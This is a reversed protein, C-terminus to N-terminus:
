LRDVEDEAQELVANSQQYDSALQLTMGRDMGYLVRSKSGYDKEASAVIADAGKPDHARLSTEILLYRNVSPGCGALLSLAVLVSLFQTSIFFGWRVQILATPGSALSSM